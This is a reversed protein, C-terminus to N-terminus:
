STSLRGLGGSTTDGSIGQNVVQYRYGRNDLIKQLLEPYGAGHPVGYGATLSDGFARIIPRDDRAAIETPVAAPRPLQSAPRPPEGSSCNAMSLSLLMLLLVKHM